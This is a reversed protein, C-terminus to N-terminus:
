KARNAPHFGDLTTETELPIIQFKQDVIYLWFDDREIRQIIFRNSYM